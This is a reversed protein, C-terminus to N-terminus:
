TAISIHSASMIMHWVSIHWVSIHWADKKTASVHSHTKITDFVDFVDFVCSDCLQESQALLHTLKENHYSSCVTAQQYATVTQDCHGMGLTFM